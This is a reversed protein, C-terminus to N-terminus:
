EEERHRSQRLRKVVGQRHKSELRRERSTATPQTPRRHKPPQAALRLLKQFRELADQRNRQQTRFRHAHITLIGARSIRKGGIKLLRSRVAASLSASHRVDFRLLVATAVKNVNQGGPGPSRVSSIRIEGEDIVLAPSSPTM